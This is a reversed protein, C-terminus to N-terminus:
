LRLHLSRHCRPSPGLTKFVIVGVASLPLAAATFDRRVAGRSQGESGGQPVTRHRALPIVRGYPAYADTYFTAHQRYSAPRKDGLQRAGHRSRDGAHFAVIQRSRADLALWLWQKNAKKGVFSCLEDVEAELPPVRLPDRRRPPQVNLHTPAAAYCEVLFGMLWTMSV